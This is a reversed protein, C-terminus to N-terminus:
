TSSTLDSKPIFETVGVSGGAGYRHFLGAESNRLCTKQRLDAAFSKRVVDLSVGFCGIQRDRFGM